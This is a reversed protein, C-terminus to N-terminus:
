PTIDIKSYSTVTNSHHQPSVFGAGCVRPWPALVTRPSTRLIAVKSKPM